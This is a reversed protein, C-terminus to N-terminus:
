CKETTEADVVNDPDTFRILLMMLGINTINLLL